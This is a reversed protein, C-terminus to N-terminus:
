LKKLDTANNKHYLLATAGSIVLSGIFKVLHPNAIPLFGVALAFFVTAIMGGFGGVAAAASQKVVSVETDWNFNPLLLNATIGFVCSFLILVAPIVLLWVLGLIDPRLALVMAVEAVLYCPLVLSVYLLLKSDLITKTPLPLSKTIWWNKGEMSISVATTPMMAFTGGVLFPLWEGLDLEIGLLHNVSEAGAVLYAVALVMGWIPGLITNTVYVGSAFYRKWERKWLSKLVTSQQLREMRYDHKATTVALRRCIAHFNHAALLVVALFVSLYVVACLALSTINGEHMARGLWLAPPYVRGLLQAVTEALDALMEPTLTEAHTGLTTSLWLSGLVIALSLVVQSVSKNKMRSSIGSIVTGLLTALSLPLLPLLLAAIAWLPYIYWAPRVLVAYVVGGPILALLTLLFDEVYMRVFRGVVIAEQQLPLSSLIEYGSRHFIMDGAKFMGFMLIILSAITVLYAPLISALGLVILGYALGGVYFFVMAILFVWAIGLLVARRKMSKDKTHRLSNLGFLNKLELSAIWKSQKLM